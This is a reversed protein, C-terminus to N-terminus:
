LIDFNYARWRRRRDARLAEPRGAPGRSASRTPLIDARHLYYSALWEEAGEGLDNHVLGSREAPSRVLGERPRGCSGTSPDTAWFRFAVSFLLDKVASGKACRPRQNTDGTGLGRFGSASVPPEYNGLSFQIGGGVPLSCTAAAGRAEHVDEDERETKGRDGGHGKAQETLFQEDLLRLLGGSLERAFPAPDNRLGTYLANLVEIKDALKLDDMGSADLNFQTVQKREEDIVFLRMAEAYAGLMDTKNQLSKASIDGAVSAAEATGKDLSSKSSTVSWNWLAVIAKDSGKHAAEKVFEQALHQAMKHTLLHGVVGGLGYGCITVAVTLATKLPKDDEKSAIKEWTDIRTTKLKEISNVLSVIESLSDGFSSVLDPSHGSRAVEAAITWMEAHLEVSRQINAQVQAMDESGIRLPRYERLLERMQEAQPDPLYSAQLYTQGIANAEALVVNRRTDFRDAAMGMTIALVFAMLALLSGVLMETPGEQEGPM